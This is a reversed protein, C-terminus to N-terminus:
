YGEQEHEVFLEQGNERPTTWLQYQRRVILGILLCVLPGTVLNLIFLLPNLLFITQIKEAIITQSQQTIQVVGELGRFIWLDSPLVLIFGLLLELALFVRVPVPLKKHESSERGYTAILLLALATANFVFAELTQVDFLNPNAFINDPIRWLLTFLIFSGNAGTLDIPVALRWPLLGSLLSLTPYFAPSILQVNLSAMTYDYIAAFVYGVMIPLIGLLLVTIAYNLLSRQPQAIVAAAQSLEETEEADESEDENVEALTELVGEDTEV